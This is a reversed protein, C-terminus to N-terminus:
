LGRSKCWELPRSWCVIRLTLSVNLIHQVIALASSTKGEPVVVVENYHGNTNWQLLDALAPGAGILNVIAGTCISLQFGASTFDTKTATGFPVEGFLVM